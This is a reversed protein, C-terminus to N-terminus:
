PLSLSAKGIEKYSVYSSVDVFFCVCLGYVFMAVFKILYLNTWLCSCILFFQGLISISLCSM